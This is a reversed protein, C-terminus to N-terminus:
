IVCRSIRTSDEFTNLSLKVRGVILAKINGKWPTFVKIIGNKLDLKRIIGVAVDKLEDNVIGVILGEIDQPRIINVEYGQAAEIRPIYAVNEVFINITNFYRSAHVVKNIFEEPAKILSKLEDVSIEKGNLLCSGILKVDKINLDRDKAESFYRRYAEARLRRRDERSREKVKFPRPVNIIKIDNPLANSLYEWIEQDLVLVHTPKLWKIMNLKFELAQHTAVWGDTNVVVVEYNNRSEGLLENLAIMLQAQCYQPSICGVFKIMEPKLDRQWVFTHKPETLAITTPIAIDEQGIDADIIAVRRGRQIFYNSIFASLTTKGSEIPGIVFVEINKLDNLDKALDDCIKLWVDLVEEGESPEEVTAGSGLTIALETEELAKICYSRLSHIIVSSGAGYSAGVLLIKGRKVDIRAPGTIRIMSDKGLTINVVM